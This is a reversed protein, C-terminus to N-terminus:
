EWTRYDKASGCPIKLALGVGGDFDSANIKIMVPYDRGVKGRVADYIEFIIRARNEISGGYEDTRRNLILLYSSRCCIVM